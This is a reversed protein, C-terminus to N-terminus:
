AAVEEIVIQNGDVQYYEMLKEKLKRYRNKTISDDAMGKGAENKGADVEDIERMEKGPTIEEIRITEIMERVANNEELDTKGNIGIQIMEIVYADTLQVTVYSSQYEEKKLFRQVDEEVLQEYEERCYEQNVYGIRESDKRIRELDQWFQIYDINDLFEEESYAITTIPSIVAIIILLRMFFVIYKEYIKGQVMYLLVNTLIFLIVIGKMWNLVGEM